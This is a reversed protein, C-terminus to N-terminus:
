HDSAFDGGTKKGAEGSRILASRLGIPSLLQNVALVGLLLIAAESGFAPFSQPIAVILALSLGAQPVLGIWAHKTIEPEAGARSAATRTAFYYWGARAAVIILVPVAMSALIRLDIRAGALAFWVIFVPLQASEFGHLLKSADARSFNELWIGAALMVILPDLHIRVGVEAVVICIVLAFMSAGQEAARLFQGIVMGIAVGFVMSGLLEWTMAFVTDTVDVGGGVAVGALAAVVSFIMVAVLDSVVVSALM